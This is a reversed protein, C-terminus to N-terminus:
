FHVSMGNRAATRACCKSNCCGVSEWGGGYGKEPELGGESAGRFAGQSRNKSVIETGYFLNAVHNTFNKHFILKPYLKILFFM